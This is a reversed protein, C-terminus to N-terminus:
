ATRVAHILAQLREAPQIAYFLERDFTQAEDAHQKIAAASRAQWDIMAATPSATRMALQLEAFVRARAASARPLAAIENM